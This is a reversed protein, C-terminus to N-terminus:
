TTPVIFYVFLIIEKNNNCRLDVRKQEVANSLLESRHVALSTAYRKDHLLTDKATHKTSLFFFDVIKRFSRYCFVM